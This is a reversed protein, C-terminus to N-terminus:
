GPTRFQSDSFADAADADDFQAGVEGRLRLTPDALLRRLAHLACHLEAKAVAEAVDLHAAIRDTTWGLFCAQFIVERHLPQM